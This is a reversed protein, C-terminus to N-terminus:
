VEKFKIGTVQAEELAEKVIDSVIVVMDWGEPRFLNHNGVLAPSIVLKPIWEPTGALDPRINNGEEFWQIVSRETDICNITPFINVIDYEQTMRDVVVAFRQFEGEALRTLINAVSKTVLPVDDDTFTFDLSKGERSMSLRLPLTVDISKAENWLSVRLPPGPDIYKGYRFERSDLEIGADDCLGNLHWRGKVQLDDILEYFHTM